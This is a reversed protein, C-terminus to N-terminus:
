LGKLCKIPTPVSNLERRSYWLLAPYQKIMSGRPCRYYKYFIHSLRSVEYIVGRSLFCFWLTISSNGSPYYFYSGCKIAVVCVRIRTKIASFNYCTGIILLDTNDPCLLVTIFPTPMFTIFTSFGYSFARWALRYLTCM